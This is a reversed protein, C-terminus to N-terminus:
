RAVLGIGLVAGVLVPPAGFLCAVLGIGLV